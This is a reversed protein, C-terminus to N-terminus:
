MISAAVAGVSSAIAVVVLILLVRFRRKGDLEVQKDREEASRFSEILERQGVVLMEGVAHLSENLEAIKALIEPTGIKGLAKLIESGRRALHELSASLVAIERHTDALSQKAEGYQGIEKRLEKLTGLLEQVAEEAALLEEAPDAM